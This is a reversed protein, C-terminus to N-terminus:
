ETIPDLRDNKHDQISESKATISSGQSCAGVNPHTHGALVDLADATDQMFDSLIQLVNESDSGVWTKPSMMLQKVAAVSQHVKGIQEWNGDKDYGQYCEQSHQWKAEGVDVSPLELGWPIVGRIHILHPLAYGFCFEVICGKDPLAYFGRHQGAYPVAVVLDRLLEGKPRFHEDLPQIDVAHM